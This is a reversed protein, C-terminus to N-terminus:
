IFMRMTPISQRLRPLMELCSLYRFPTLDCSWDGAQAFTNGGRGLLQWRSVCVWLYDFIFGQQIAGKVRVRGGAGCHKM